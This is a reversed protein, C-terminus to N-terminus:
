QLVEVRPRSNVIKQAEDRSLGYLQDGIQKVIAVNGFIVDYPMVRSILTAFHNYPLGMLKGEENCVLTFFDEGCRFTMTEIYGGVIDQLTDLDVPMGDPITRTVFDGDFSITLVDSRM